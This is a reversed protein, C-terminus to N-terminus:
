SAREFGDRELDRGGAEARAPTRNYLFVQKIPRLPRMPASSIRGLAGAGVLAMRSADERALYAAALASARATRRRTLETGDM